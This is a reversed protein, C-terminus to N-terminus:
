AASAALAEDLDRILDEVSELGISLRIVDPGAGAASRQEDTLQRHTTSAPHLILSRTDGINALHSFLQVNEVLGIGAQYGGKVGFTFVAGAGRPLYKRALEHFPSDKLGAYSVWAVRPHGALFEAVRGANAVHRDMRLHLTEIGTLTLFANMPSLTPGFDRLAVARAKTTFAFDGFNEYFKLGHYAPEPDTLSPFRDGQAWDFRGSEVVIGGLAHGHGSLFKTTSHCVIDAGWRFPQCLYPTALTNDVILPIGAEHAIAAVRELDVVIGGPNALNELFIAKIRTTLAKRFNEPDTPDVFHCKWGLKKFSLGFQTLSGGYLNRSAVFEDGAELLTFFILFQAAHGSAAAVAARGNELSAVREELVAVTPNSLRSYVYGFNHLNFLSAAHDVDDFVYSTTQYIPTSRAGTVPDPAAGAHIARTEFGYTMNHSPAPREKGPRAVPAEPPRNRIIGSNVGSWSLEGGLRGFEIKPCRNMVVEIGASEARAAAQDNRIGLQMWVVKAGVAIADEVIAPAERAARFVDVMDVPEAIDRLSAHVPEGLLTQGAIGPNVPIVRYGKGQLYKMVFYSPRNWNSSAGVMAITKVRQLIARLQADSYPIPDLTSM